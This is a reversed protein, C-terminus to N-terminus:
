HPPAPWNAAAAEADALEDFRRAYGCARILRAAQALEARDRFLRARHLHVDALHLPMRGREAIAQVEAPPTEGRPKVDEVRAPRSPLQGRRLGRTTLGIGFGVINLHEITMAVSWYRSSDEIGPLRRILVRETLRDAPLADWLALVKAGEAQFLRGAGEWRLKRCARPFLFYRAVLWEWWPLGAGPSQLAPPSNSSVPIAM